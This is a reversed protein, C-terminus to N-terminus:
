FYGGVQSKEKEPEVMPLLNDLDTSSLETGDWNEADVMHILNDIDMFSLDGEDWYDDRRKKNKPESNMELVDASRKPLHKSKIHRALSDKRNAIFDCHFCNFTKKNHVATIHRTLNRNETFTEDCSDCAFM